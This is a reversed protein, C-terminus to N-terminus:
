SGEKGEPILFKGGGDLDADLDEILETNPFQIFSTRVAM